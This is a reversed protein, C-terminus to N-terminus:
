QNAKQVIYPNPHCFYKYKQSFQFMMIELLLAFTFDYKMLILRVYIQSLVM